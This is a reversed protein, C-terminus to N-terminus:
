TADAQARVDAAKMAEARVDDFAPIHDDWELLTSRGGSLEHALRYLQWVEDCVPHDHTDLRHTEFVSHGALHFQVVHEWPVERLYA